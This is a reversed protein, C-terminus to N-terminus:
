WGAFLGSVTKFRVTPYHWLSLLLVMDGHTNRVEPFLEYWCGRTAEVVVNPDPPRAGPTFEDTPHTPGQPRLPHLGRTLHALTLNKPFGLPCKPVMSKLGKKIQKTKDHKTLRM